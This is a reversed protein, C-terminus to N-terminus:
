HTLGDRIPLSLTFSTGKGAESDVTLEGGHATAIGRALYLGLGLGATDGGAAHRLFLQPLLEQPIGPGEDHIEVIAWAGDDGQRERISVVVPASDPTHQIANGVLNQVAQSLRAADAEVILEHPARVTVERSDTKVGDLVDHVLDVLDVSRRTLSFIGGELRSADLLDSVMRSLRGLSTAIRATQATERGDAERRMRRLLLDAEGKIPTIQNQLDHAVAELMEEAVQRRAEELAQRTVQEHLQARHAIM